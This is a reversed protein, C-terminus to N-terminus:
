SSPENHSTQRILQKYVRYEVDLASELSHNELIDQRAQQSLSSRLAEDAILTMIGNQLDAPNEPLLLGNKEHNILERIGPVNTGIVACGCAM